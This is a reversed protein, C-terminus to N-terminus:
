LIEVNHFIMWMVCLNRLKGTGQAALCRSKHWHFFVHHRWWISITEANSPRQAPFEGTVPSKGACLGTVRLKSTKKSRRRFLGNLLCDHPQHNSVDYRENHRWQLSKMFKYYSKRNTNNKNLLNLGLGFPCWKVSSVTLDMKKFLFIYIKILIESLNTGLPGILLIGANTWIITQCRGPSLGNDTLRSVCIYTM